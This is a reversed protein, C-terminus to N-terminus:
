FGNQMDLMKCGTVHLPVGSGQCPWYRLGHPLLLAHFQKLVDSQLGVQCQRANSKKFIRDPQLFPSHYILSQCREPHSRHGPWPIRQASLCQKHPPPRAGAPHQAPLDRELRGVGPQRSCIQIGACWTLGSNNIHSGRGTTCNHSVILTTTDTDAVHGALILPLFSLWRM